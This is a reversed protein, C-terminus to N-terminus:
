QPPPLPKGNASNALVELFTQGNPASVVLNWSAAGTDAHNLYPVETGIPSNKAKEVAALYAVNNIEHYNPQELSVAAPQEAHPAAEHTSASTEISNSSQASSSVHEPTLPTSNNAAENLQHANTYSRLHDTYTKNLTNYADIDSASHFGRAHADSVKSFETLLSDYENRTKQGAIVQKLDVTGHQTLQSEPVHSSGGHSIENHSKYHHILQPVAPQAENHNAEVRTPVHETSHPWIKSNIPDIKGDAHILVHHLPFHGGRDIVIEGHNVSITDGPQMITSGTHTEFGLKIAASDEGALYGTQGKKELLGYLAKIAPPEHGDASPHHDHVMKTFHGLLRDADYINKGDIHQGISLHDPGQSIHEAGGGVNSAGSGMHHGAIAGLGLHDPVGGVFAEASPTIETMAAGVAAGLAAGGAFAGFRRAWAAQVDIDEKTRLLRKRKQSLNAINAVDSLDGVGARGGKKDTLTLGKEAKEETKFFKHGMRTGGEAARGIMGGITWKAFGAAKNVYKDKKVQDKEFLARIAYFASPVAMVSGLLGLPSAGLAVIGATGLGGMLAAGFLIKKPKSVKNKFWDFRKEIFGKERTKLGEIRARQQAEEAGFVVERLITGREYKELAKAIYEDTHGKGKLRESASSKLYGGYEARSQMWAKKFAQIETPLAVEKKTFKDLSVSFFGRKSHFEKLAQLYQRESDYMKKAFPMAKEQVEASKDLKKDWKQLIEKRNKNKEKKADAKVQEELQQRKIFVAQLKQMEDVGRSRLVGRLIVKDNEKLSTDIDFGKFEKKQAAEITEPPKPPEVPAAPEVISEPVKPSAVPDVSKPLSDIGDKNQNLETSAKEVVSKFKQRNKEIQERRKKIIEPTAQKFKLDDNSNISDPQMGGYYNTNHQIQNIVVTRDLDKPVSVGKATASIKEPSKSRPM